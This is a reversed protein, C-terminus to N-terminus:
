QHIKLQIWHSKVYCSVYVIGVADVIKQPIKYSDAKEPNYDAEFSLTNMNFMKILDGSEVCAGLMSIASSPAGGIVMM